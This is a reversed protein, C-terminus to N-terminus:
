DGSHTILHTKLNTKWASTFHCQNSKNSRKGSHIKLHTKLYTPNKIAHDCWTCKYCKDESHSKKHTRSHYAQMLTYDCQNCKNTKKEVTLKWIHRGAKQGFPYLIVNTVSTKNKTKTSVEWQFWRMQKPYFKGVLMWIQM